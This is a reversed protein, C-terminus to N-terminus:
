TSLDGVHGLVDLLLGTEDRRRRLDDVGVRGRGLVVLDAELREVLPLEGPALEALVPQGHDAERMMM